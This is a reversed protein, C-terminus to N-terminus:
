AVIETKDLFWEGSEYECHISYLLGDEGMIKFCRRRGRRDLGEEIWRDLIKKVPVEIGNLVLLRPAESSRSGEYCIVELRRGKEVINDNEAAAAGGTNPQAM